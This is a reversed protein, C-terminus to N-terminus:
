IHSDRNQPHSMDMYTLKGANVQLGVERSTQLLVERNKRITDMNEGLIDDAYV